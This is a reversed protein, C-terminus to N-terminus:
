PEVVPTSSPNGPGACTHTHADHTTRIDAMSGASDSVDGTATVNAASLDGTISVNPANIELKTAATIAITGGRKIHIYDGEDTYIAVEGQALSKLRYRVDDVCIVVAHSRRGGISLMVAKADAHPHSTFGYNQVREVDDLVEGALSKVQLRQLGKDDKVLVVYALNVILKIRRYVPKLLRNVSQIVLQMVAM